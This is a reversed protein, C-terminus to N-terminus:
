DQAVCEASDEAAQKAAREAEKRERRERAKAERVAAREDDAIFGVAAKLVAALDRVHKSGFNPNRAITERLAALIGNGRADLAGKWTKAGATSVILLALAASLQTPAPDSDASGVPASDASEEPSPGPAPPEAAAEEPPAQDMPATEIEQEPEIQQEPEVQQEPEPEIEPEPKPTTPQKPKKSPKGSPQNRGRSDSRSKHHPIEARREMEAREAAVTKGDVGLLKGITRDSAKPHSLLFNAVLNRKQKGTLHRRHFNMRIVFARAEDDNSLEPVYTPCTEGVEGAARYRHRGDLIKDQYLAIRESVGDKRISDRLVAYEDCSMEPIITALHHVELDPQKPKKTMM